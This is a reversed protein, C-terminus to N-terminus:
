QPKGCDNRRRAPLWVARARARLSFVAGAAFRFSCRFFYLSFLFLYVSFFAPIPTFHAQYVWFREIPSAKGNYSTAFIINAGAEVVVGINRAVDDADIGRERPNEQGHVGRGQFM